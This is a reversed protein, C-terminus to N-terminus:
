GAPTLYVFFRLRVGLIYLGILLLILGGIVPLCGSGDPQSQVPPAKDAISCVDVSTPVAEIGSGKVYCMLNADTGPDLDLTISESIKPGLWGFGIVHRGPSLILRTTSGNKITTTKVGDIYISFASASGGARAERMIGVRCKPKSSDVSYTQREVGTRVSAVSDPQSPKHVQTSKLVSFCRFASILMAFFSVIFDLSLIGDDFGIAAGICASLLYFTFALIAWPGKGFDLLNSIGGILVLFMYVYLWSYINESILFGVIMALVMFAGLIKTIVTFRAKRTM